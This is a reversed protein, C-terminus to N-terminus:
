FFLIGVAYLVLLPLHPGIHFLEDHAVFLGVVGIYFLDLVKLGGVLGLELLHIVVDFFEFFLFENLILFLVSSLTLLLNLISVNSTLLFVFVRLLLYSFVDSVVDTLYLAFDQLLLVLETLVHIFFVFLRQNLLPVFHFLDLGFLSLTNLFVLGPHDLQLLLPRLLLPFGLLHLLFPIVQHGFILIELSPYCRV